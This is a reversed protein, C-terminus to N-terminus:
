AQNATSNLAQLAIYSPTKALQTDNLGSAKLRDVTEQLISHQDTSASVAGASGTNGNQPDSHRYGVVPQVPALDWTNKWAAYQADDLGLAYAELSPQQPATAKNSSVLNQVFTRKGAEVSERHTAELVTMHAAVAAPVAHSVGNIIVPVTGTSNTVKNTTQPAPVPSGNEDANAEEADDPAPAGKGTEATDPSPVLEDGAPITEGDGTSGAPEDTGHPEGTDHATVKGMGNEKKNMFRVQQMVRSPAPAAARGAYNFVSLNWNKAKEEAEEDDDQMVSHALGAEVAEPGSYWVEERMFSRWDEATTENGQSYIDAINDSVRDLVEAQKRMSDATGWVMGAADHIMMTANRMMVIETGAQAIFSAASAALSDVIVKVPKDKGLQKLASHIAVGDFVDGGPSNIHVEFAEIDDTNADNLEKVFDSATVGFWGGIEDYIRVEAVKKKGTTKNKISFWRTLSKPEVARATPRDILSQPM